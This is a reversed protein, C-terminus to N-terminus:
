NTCIIYYSLLNKNDTSTLLNNYFNLKNFICNGILSVMSGM